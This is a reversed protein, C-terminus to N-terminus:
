PLGRVYSVLRSVAVSLEAAFRGVIAGYISELQDPLYDHAIRNRFERMEMWLEVDSLWGRKVGHAVRDRLTPSSAGMEHIELSRVAKSLVLEVLREFRSTLADFPEMAVPDDVLDRDFPPLHDISSRFTRFAKEVKLVDAQLKTTNM